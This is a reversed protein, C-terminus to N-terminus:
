GVCATCCLMVFHRVQFPEYIPSVSKNKSIPSASSPTGETLDKQLAALLWVLLGLSEERQGISFRKKSEVSIEQMLEQPSVISKFNSPSWLKRM